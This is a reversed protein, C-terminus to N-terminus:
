PMPHPASCLPAHPARAPAYIAQLAKGAGGVGSCLLDVAKRAREIRRMPDGRGTHLRHIHIYAAAANSLDKACHPCIM